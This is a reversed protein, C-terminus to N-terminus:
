VTLTQDGAGAEGELVRALVLQLADGVAPVEVAEYASSRTADRTM